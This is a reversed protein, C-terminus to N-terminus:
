MMACAPTCCSPEPPQPEIEVNEWTKRAKEGDIRISQIQRPNAQVADIIHQADDLKSKIGFMSDGTILQITRLHHPQSLLHEKVISFNFWLGRAADSSTQITVSTYGGKVIENCTKIMNDLRSQVLTHYPREQYDSKPKVLSRQQAQTQEHFMRM